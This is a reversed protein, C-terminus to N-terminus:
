AAPRTPRPPRGTRPRSCGAAGTSPRSASTWRRSAQRRRAPWTPAWGNPRRGPAAPPIPWRGALAAQRAARGADERPRFVPLVKGEFGLDSLLRRNLARHLFGGGSALPRVVQPHQNLWRIQEPDSVLLVDILNFLRLRM